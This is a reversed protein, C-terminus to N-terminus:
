ERDREERNKFGEKLELKADARLRDFVEQVARSREERLAYQDYLPNQTPGAVASKTFVDRFQEVTKEIREVECAVYYRNRPADALVTVGGLPEKRLALLKETFDQTPYLVQEREITPGVYGQNATTPEHRFKLLALRDLEFMRAKNEAAVDKIQREVGDPNMGVTKAIGRIKEALQDAEAKALARAKEFKWARVVRKTMEGNTQGDANTLTNYTKADIEKSVWVFHNPKDVGDGSPEGPFWFPDFPQVDDRSLGTRPDTAFLRNSLSNSGDPEVAALDNLPKLNPDKVLAFQDTADKTGQATLNREKLWETVLKQSETKAKELKTKDPFRETFRGSDMSIKFLKQQLEKVDAIFLGQRQQKKATEVADKRYLGEPPLKPLLAYAFAPSGLANGMTPNFPMLWSQLFIPARVALEHQMIQQYALSVPAVAGSMPFGAFGAMLAAIPQPRYVSYDRPHFGWQDFVDYPKTNENMRVSVAEKIPLNAAISPQSASALASVMDGSLAGASFCLFQSAAEVKPIAKTIREATADLTVFEVQVKRPDKFGPRDRSPDPLEGRHKNFLDNLEKATPEGTVKPVFDEANLELVAFSHESCRDKYFEFFESPTLSGPVASLINMTGPIYSDPAPSNFLRQFAANRLERMMTSDGSEGMLSALAMRVRYENGIAQLLSDASLEGYRGGAQMQQTIIRGEEGLKLGLRNLTDQEMMAIIGEESYNIGLQDAKKLLLHFNLAGEDTDIPIPAIFFPLGSLDYALISGVADMIKKDESDPKLSARRMSESLAQVERLGRLMAQQNSQNFNGAMASMYAFLDNKYTMYAQPNSKAKARLSVFREIDRKTESSLRSNTSKLEDEIERAWNTYAADVAQQMFANAAQRQQRIAALNASTVDDGYAEAVVEGRGKSSFLSGIQDFFDNGSGVAGTSLVFTLMVVIGLIAMTARGMKSRISFAEFPNFAM